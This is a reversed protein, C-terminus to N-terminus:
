KYSPHSPVKAPLPNSKQTSASFGGLRSFGNSTAWSDIADVSGLREIARHLDGVSREAMQTRADYHIYDQRATELYVNAVLGFLFYSGFSIALFVLSSELVRESVQVFSRARKRSRYRDIPTIEPQPFQAVNTSNTSVNAQPLGDKDFYYPQASM